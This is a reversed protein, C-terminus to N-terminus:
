IWQWEWEGRLRNKDVLMEIMERVAGMGGDADLRYINEVLGRDSGGGLRINADNPCFAWGVARLLKIDNYDDGIAAAEEFSLGEAQLIEKAKALKDSVGQFCYKVGLESARNAVLQSTKGTIIATILGMKNWQWVGFGDKVDFRKMEEGSNGLYLGGDSMCGDIDLFIIKIM